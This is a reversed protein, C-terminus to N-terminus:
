LSYAHTVSIVLMSHNCPHCRISPSPLLSAFAVSQLSLSHFAQSHPHASSSYRMLIQSCIGGFFELNAPQLSSGTLTTNGLRVSPQSYAFRGTQLVTSLLINLLTWMIGLSQLLTFTTTGLLLATSSKYRFLWQCEYVLGCKGRRPLAEYTGSPGRCCLRWDRDPPDITVLVSTSPFDKM